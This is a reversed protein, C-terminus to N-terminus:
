ILVPGKPIAGNLGNEITKLLKETADVQDHNIYVLKEECKKFKGSSLKEFQEIQWASDNTKTIRVAYKIKKM